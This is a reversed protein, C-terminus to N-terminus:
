VSHCCKLYISNDSISTSSAVKEWVHSRVCMGPVTLCNEIMCLGECDWKLTHHQANGVISVFRYWGLCPISHDNGCVNRSRWGLTKFEYKRIETENEEKNLKLRERWLHAIGRSKNWKEDRVTYTSSYVTPPIVRAARCEETRRM